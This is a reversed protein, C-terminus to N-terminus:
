VKVILTKHVELGKLSDAKPVATTRNEYRQVRICAFVAFFFM